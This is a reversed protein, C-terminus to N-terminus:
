SDHGEEEHQGDTAGREQQKRRRQAERKVMRRLWQSPKPIYAAIQERTEETVYLTINPMALILIRM